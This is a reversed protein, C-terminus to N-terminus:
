ASKKQKPVALIYTQPRKKHGLEKHQELFWLLGAHTVGLEESARAIAGRTNAGGHKTLARSVLKAKIEDVRQEVDAYTQSNDALIQIALQLAANNFREALHTNRTLEAARALNNIAANIDLPLEELLTLHVNAQGIPDNTHEFIAGARELEEQALALKGLRALSRGLTVLTRGLMSKQDTHELANAALRSLRAAEPYNTEAFFISAQQDQAEAILHQNNLRVFLSVAKAASEHAQKYDGFDRFVSALNNRVMAEGKVCSAKAYYFLAGQYEVIADDLNAKTPTKRLVVAREQHFQGRLVFPMEDALREVSNLTTFADDLKGIETEFLAKTLAVEFTLQHDIPSVDAIYAIAENIEGSRWYCLALEIQAKHKRQDRVRIFLRYAENLLDKAKEQAGKAKREAGLRSTLMGCLLLNEATQRQTPADTPRVGVGKWTTGLLELAAGTEGLRLEDFASTIQDTTTM